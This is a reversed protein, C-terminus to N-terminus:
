AAFGAEARRLLKIVADAGASSSRAVELTTRGSLLAHPMSLFRDIAQRDGHYTRGVADVVRSVEYLHESMEHSLARRTKRARRSTAGPVIGGIVLSRGLVKGLADASAPKLGASIRDALGIDDLRTKATLGLLRGIVNGCSNLRQPSATRVPAPCKFRIAPFSVRSSLLCHIFASFPSQSVAWTGVPNTPKPTASGEASYRLLSNQGYKAM